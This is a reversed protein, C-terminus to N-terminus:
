SLKNRNDISKKTLYNEAEVWDDLTDLNISRSKPMIHSMVKKGYINNHKILSKRTFCYVAGNRTYTPTLKQRKSM